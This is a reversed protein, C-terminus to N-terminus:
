KSTLLLLVYKPPPSSSDKQKPLWLGITCEGHMHRQFPLCTRNMLPAQAPSKLVFLFGRTSKPQVTFPSLFDVSCAAEKLALDLLHQMSSCLTDSRAGDLLLLYPQHKIPPVPMHFRWAPLLGNLVPVTWSPEAKQYMWVSAPFMSVMCLLMLTCQIDGVLLLVLQKRTQVAQPCRMLIERQKTLRFAWGPM